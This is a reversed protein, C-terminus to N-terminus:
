VSVCERGRLCLGVREREGREREFVLGSEREGREREFM